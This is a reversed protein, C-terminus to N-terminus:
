GARVERLVVGVAEATVTVSVRTVEATRYAAAGGPLLPAALYAAGALAVVGLM